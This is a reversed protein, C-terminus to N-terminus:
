AAAARNEFFRAYAAAGHGQMAACSELFGINLYFDCGLLGTGIVGHYIGAGGEPDIGIGSKENFRSGFVTMDQAEILIYFGDAGVKAQSVAESDASVGPLEDLHRM